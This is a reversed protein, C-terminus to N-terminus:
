AVVEPKGQGESILGGGGQEKVSVFHEELSEKNIYSFHFDYFEMGGNKEATGERPAYKCPTNWASGYITKYTSM